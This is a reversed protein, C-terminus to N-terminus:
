ARNKLGVITTKEARVRIMGREPTKAGPENVTAV